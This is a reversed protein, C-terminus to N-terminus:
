LGSPFLVFLSCSASFLGTLFNDKENEIATRELSNSSDLLCVLSMCGVGLEGWARPPTNGIHFEGQGAGSIQKCHAHPRWLKEERRIDTRSAM